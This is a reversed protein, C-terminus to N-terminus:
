IDSMQVVNKTLDLTKYDIAVASHKILDMM